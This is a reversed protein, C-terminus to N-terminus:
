AALGLRSVIFREVAEVTTLWDRGSQFGELMGAKIWAVITNRTKGLRFAADAAGIKPERQLDRAIDYKTRTCPIPVMTKM